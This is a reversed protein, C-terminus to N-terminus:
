KHLKALIIIKQFIRVEKSLMLKIEPNNLLLQIKRTLEIHNGPEYTIM